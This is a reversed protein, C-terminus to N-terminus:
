VYQLVTPDDGCDPCLVQKDKLYVNKLSNHDISMTCWCCSHYDKLENDPIEIGDKTFYKTSPIINEEVIKISSYDLKYFIRRSNISRKAGVIKAQITADELHKIENNHFYLRLDKGSEAPDDCMLYPCGCEDKFEIGVFVQVVNGLYSHDLVTEFQTQNVAVSKPFLSQQKPVYPVVVGGRWQQSQVTPLGKTELLIPKELVVPLGLNLEWEYHFDENFTYIEGIKYDERRCINILMWAESAWLIAKRDESYCYYLPREKNRLFHITQDVKNYWVLAWAGRAKGIADKIGFREVTSFLAESDVDFDKHGDLEYKNTLTGNHVGVIEDFDFPHANKRNVIGSSAWRNHGILVRNCRKFISSTDRMDLLVFPDGVQKSVFCENKNTISAIGTSDEGRISDIIL